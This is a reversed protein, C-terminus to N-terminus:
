STFPASSMAERFAALSSPSSDISWNTEKIRDFWVLLRVRPMSTLLSRGMNLIWQAKSGGTETSATEAIMVPKETLSTLIRYSPGFIQQFQRWPTGDVAAFNYGDLGVWNVWANGPYFEAFPCRGECDTNPAWVWRVNDAGEARFLSVVHRWARVYAAPTNGSVGESWAYGRLNMEHAFDIFMPYRWAAALRASARIYRDFKGAAIARLSYSESGRTGEPLWNIMPIPGQRALPRIQSQYFLPESWNQYWMVVAPRRGAQEAFAGVALTSPSSITNVGLAVAGTTDALRDIAQGSSGGPISPSASVGCSPTFLVLAVTALIPVVSPEILTRVTM